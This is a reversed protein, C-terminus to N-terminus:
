IIEKWRRRASIDTVGGEKPHDSGEKLPRLDFATRYEIQTIPVECLHSQGRCCLTLVAVITLGVIGIGLEDPPWVVAYYSVLTTMTLICFLVCVVSSLIQNIRSEFLPLGGVTVM